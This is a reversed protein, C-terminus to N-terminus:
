VGTDQRFSFQFREVSFKVAGEEPIIADLDLYLYISSINHPYSLLDTKQLYNKKSSCSDLNPLILISELIFKWEFDTNREIKFKLTPDQLTIVFQSNENPHVKSM